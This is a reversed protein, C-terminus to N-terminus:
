YGGGLGLLRSVAKIADQEGEPTFDNRRGMGAAVMLPTGNGLIQNDDGNVKTQKIFVAENIETKTLPNAGHELLMEMGSFDQSASALMFPTAGSLNILPLRDLRLQPPPYKMRANIDAGKTLLAEALDYMNGGPLYKNNPKADVYYLGLQNLVSKAAEREEDPASVFPICYGGDAYGCILTSAVIEYGHLVKLGDRMAYHLATMGNADAANPDAGQELLYLAIAEHGWASAIVLAPGDEASSENVKAGANVLLKVTQMEGSRAAFMLATYGGQPVSLVNGAYGELVMPSFDQKEKLKTTKANVDASREILVRAVEPYGYSIAWMLATQGRRPEHVNIDAGNDLLLEVLSTNGTRAATMLPTEGTWMGIGPDAGAKLLISVMEINRNRIALILPTIGLDNGTNVNAKAAILKRTVDLNDWYVGWALVTTGDAQVENVDSKQKLQASLADWDQEKAAMVLSQQASVGLLGISAFLVLSLVGQWITKGTMCEM